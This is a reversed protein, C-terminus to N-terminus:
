NKELYTVLGYPDSFFGDAGIKVSFEQSVPAGGIFIKTEPTKQKVIDIVDKMNLMTTTLLASLGVVCQPHELVADLFKEKHVDTGLDIVDWGAGTMVMRVLNKGIDHLDGAVTGLVLTGKTAIAKADYFPKLHVMAANMARAAILMNPIYAQGKSFKEGIRKMGPILGDNLILQIDIKQELAKKTLESAGDQGKLEPPYPTNKDIKGVEVAHALKELLEEM